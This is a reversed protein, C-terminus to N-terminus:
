HVCGARPALTSYREKLRPHPSCSSSEVGTLSARAEVGDLSLSNVRGRARDKLEIKPSVNSGRTERTCRYQAGSTRGVRGAQDSSSPVQSRSRGHGTGPAPLHGVMTASGGRLHSQDPTKLGFSDSQICRQDQSRTGGRGFARVALQPENQQYKPTWLMYDTRQPPSSWTLEIGGTCIPKFRDRM